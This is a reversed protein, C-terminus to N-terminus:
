RPEINQETKRVEAQVKECQKKKAQVDPPFRLCLEYLKGKSNGLVSYGFKIQEDLLRAQTESNKRAAEAEVLASHRAEQESRDNWIMGILGAVVLALILFAITWGLGRM